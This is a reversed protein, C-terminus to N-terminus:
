NAIEKVFLIEIEPSFTAAHYESWSHFFANNFESGSLWEAYIM